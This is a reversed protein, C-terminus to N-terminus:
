QGAFLTLMFARQASTLTDRNAWLQNRLYARGAPSLLAQGIASPVMGGAVSGATAAWPGGALAGIGAGAAAAGLTTMTSRPAADTHPPAKFIAEAANAMDYPDGAYREFRPGSEPHMANYLKSHSITGPDAAEGGRVIAKEIVRLNREQTRVQRFAPADAPNNVAISREMADDLATRIKGLV